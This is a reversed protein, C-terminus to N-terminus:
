VAAPVVELTLGPNSRAADELTKLIREGYGSSLLATNLLVLNRGSLETLCDYLADLNKGYYGPFSLMKALYEHAQERETLYECNLIVNM